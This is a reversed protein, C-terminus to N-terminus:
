WCKANGPKSVHRESSFIDRQKLKCKGIKLSISHRHKSNNANWKNHFEQELGEGWKLFIYMYKMITSM